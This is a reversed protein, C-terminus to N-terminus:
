NNGFINGVKEVILNQLEEQTTAINNIVSKSIARNENALKTLQNINVGIKNIEYVLQFLEKTNKISIVYGDILMKRAYQSFNTTGFQKMKIQINNYEEESVYVELKIARTRNKKNKIFIVGKKIKFTYNLVVFFDCKCSFFLFM